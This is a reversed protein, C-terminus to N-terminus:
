MYTYGFDFSHTLTQGNQIVIDTYVITDYGVMTMFTELESDTLFNGMFRRISNEWGSEDQFRHAGTTNNSITVLRYNGSPINDFTYQGLGDVKARYVGNHGQPDLTNALSDNDGGKINYDLPILFLKAGVDAKTGIFKNYQWTINGKLSGYGTPTPIQINIIKESAIETSNSGGDWVGNSDVYYGDPTTTNKLIAGGNGAYYYTGGINIWQNEVMQGDANVYYLSGDDGSVFQSLALTGNENLYFWSGGDLKWANTMYSGNDSYHWLGDDTKEWGAFAPVSALLSLCGAVAFTKLLVKKM